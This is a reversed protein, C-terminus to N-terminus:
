NSIGAYGPRITAVLDREASDRQGLAHIVLGWLPPLDDEIRNRPDIANIRRAVGERVYARVDVQEAAPPPPGSRPVSSFVPFSSVSEGFGGVSLGFLTISVFEFFSVPLTARTVPAELPMPAPM